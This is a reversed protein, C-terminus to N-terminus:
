EELANFSTRPKSTCETPPMKTKATCSSPASSPHSLYSNDQHLTSDTSQRHLNFSSSHKKSVCPGM